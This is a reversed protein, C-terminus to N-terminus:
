PNYRYSPPRFRARFKIALQDPHRRRQAPAFVHHADLSQDEGGGLRDCAVRMAITIPLSQL